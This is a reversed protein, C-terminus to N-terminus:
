NFLNLKLLELRYNLESAGLARNSGEIKAKLNM